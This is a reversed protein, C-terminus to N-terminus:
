KVTEIGIVKLECRRNLQRNAPNDSGDANTNSVMPETEGYGKSVMQTKNINKAILYDVVAKARQNSLILNYADNGKSDTHGSIEVVMKPYKKLLNYLKALESNSVPRLTSKDFDFFINKLVIKSGVVLPQLKVVEHIEYFNSSDKVDINISHFLFNDAEYTINYNKGPPLILLYNGSVSNTHYTGVIKETENDTVTIYVIEPVKGYPDTILGKLVVLPPEVFKKFTIMYNDKEGFGGAKFSSYYARQNNPSVVYYIDDEPSNIPYGINTPTKWENNANLSSSFIDFGGMTAHGNSSFYLTVGDPHIFPADEEFPTNITPGLNKAKAWEGDPLKDSSYIDRGGYGGERNSTFYLRNGDASLFASPEWGKTNINDNLKVPPSWTNGNLNTIYLDGDGDEDKYVIIIQGDVSIGVSAENGASNVPAGISEAKTWIGNKKYSIFIDEYTIGTTDDERGTSKPKRTTFIMTSEDASLVPSYEAFSTNIKKGLNDIQVEISDKVLKKGVECMEIKRNTETLLDQNKHESLLSKFHDYTSIALDFQYNSHYADGLYSFGMLHDNDDKLTCKDPCSVAKELYPVAKKKDLKSNIYCVGIKFNLDANLTDNKNLRLYLLLAKDFQDNEILNDANETLLYYEENSIQAFVNSISLLSIFLLLKIKEM